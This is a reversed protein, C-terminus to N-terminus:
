STTEEKKTETEAPKNKKFVLENDQQAKIFAEKFANADTSVIFILIQVFLCSMHFTIFSVRVTQLDFLWLKLKLNVRVSMLLLMGCGLDIVESM